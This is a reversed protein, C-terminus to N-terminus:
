GKLAGDLMAQFFARRVLLFLAVVPLAMLICAAAIVQLNIINQSLFDYLGFMLPRQENRTILLYGAIFENWVGIFTMLFVATLGPAALPLIVHLLAALPTCGETLASEELEIPVTDFFAKLIWIAIPLYIGTYTLILFARDDLFPMWTEAQYLALLNTLIPLGTVALIAAFLAQRGRFRYRSLAYACLAALTLSLLASATAYHLTNPLYLRLLRGTVTHGFLAGPRPRLALVRQYGETSWRCTTLDLGDCPLLVPPTHTIDAQSKFSTLITALIPLAALACLLALAAHTLIRRPLATDM